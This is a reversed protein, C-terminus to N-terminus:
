ATATWSDGLSTPAVVSVFAVVLEPLVNPQPRQASVPLVDEILTIVRGTVARFFTQYASVSNARCSDALIRLLQLEDAESKIVYGLCAFGWGLEWFGIGM